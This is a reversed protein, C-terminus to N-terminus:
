FNEIEFNLSPKKSPFFVSEPIQTPSGKKWTAGSFNLQGRQEFERKQTVLFTIEPM